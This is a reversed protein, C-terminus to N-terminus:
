NGHYRCRSSNRGATGNKKGRLSNAQPAGYRVLNFYSKVFFQFACGSSCRCAVSNRLFVLIFVLVFICYFTYLMFYVGLM